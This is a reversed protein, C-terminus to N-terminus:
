SNQRRAQARRQQRTQTTSEPVSTVEQEQRSQRRIYWQQLIGLLSSIFIYLVLGSPLVLM